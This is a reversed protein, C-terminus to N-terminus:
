TTTPRRRPRTGYDAAQPLLATRQTRQRVQAVRLKDNAADAPLRHTPRHQHNHPTRQPQEDPNPQTADQGGPAPSGSALTRQTCWPTQRARTWECTRAPNQIASEKSQTRQPRRLRRQGRRPHGPRALDKERQTQPESLM